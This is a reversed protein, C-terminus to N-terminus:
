ANGPLLIYLKFTSKGLNLAFSASATTAIVVLFVIFKNMKYHLLPFSYLCQQLDEQWAHIDLEPLLPDLAYVWFELGLKM